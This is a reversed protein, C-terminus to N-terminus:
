AANEKTAKDFQEKAKSHVAKLPSWEGGTKKPMSFKIAAFDSEGFKGEKNVTLSYLIEEPKLGDVKGIVECMSVLEARLEAEPKEPESSTAGKEQPAKVGDKKYEVKGVQDKEIGAFKKLDEWTLNRIGLLRTIGNGLMNTLAAMKVDRKNDREDITKERKVDNVYVNQKFFSDRSSRSGEVEISRGGMSFRGQFTYTYHGDPDQEYLPEPTLFSWSINFLNAIKESGSVQLYPNGQQDTWDRPNTVKLALQKIKIVADIRAEAMKAIAILSDDAIPATDRYVEIDQDRRAVEDGM